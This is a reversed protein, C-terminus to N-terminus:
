GRLSGGGTAGAPGAGGARARPRLRGDRGAEIAGAIELRALEAALVDPALALRAALEDRTAPADCLSAEIRAGVASRELALERQVNAGPGTEGASCDSRDAGGAGAAVSPEARPTVGLAAFVDSEDLVIRAGDRLLHNPGEATPTGLAGPIALVEVGQDAAHRATVLSGSRLRAEVVLVAGSLASILRNRLPFFARRPTVGPGFESLLAGAARIRRALGRHGAPYVDDPGRAQVAVTRAAPGAALAGEHACADIGRALGSIVCVGQAAVRRALTRAIERGYGTAARAGVMALCPRDIAALDGQVLLVPPADSLRKLREPYSPSTWPLVRVDDAVLARWAAGDPAIAAARARQESDGSRALAEAATGAALPRSRQLPNSPM